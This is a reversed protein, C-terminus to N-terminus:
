QYSLNNTQRYNRWYYFRILLKFSAVRAGILPPSKAFPCNVFNSSLEDIPFGNPLKVEIIVSTKVWFHYFAINHLLYQLLALRM